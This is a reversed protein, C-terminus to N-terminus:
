MFRWTIGTTLTSTGSRSNDVIRILGVALDCDKSPSYVLGTEIYDARNSNGATRVMKTGLDLGLKWAEGFQWVAAISAHYLMADPNNTTDRYRTRASFLNAHVAGFATAQTLIATLAYSTRGSGLGAAEKAPSTPLLYQPKLAISTQHSQSEYIRWKLGLVSNGVGSADGPPLDSGISVHSVSAFVDLTDSLGHTFTVPLIRATTIIGPQESRSKELSFELQNGGDGQTGTDDTVLPQYAYGATSTALGVGIMLAWARIRVAM